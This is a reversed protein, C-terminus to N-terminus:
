MMCKRKTQWIQAGITLGPMELLMYHKSGNVADCLHRNATEVLRFSSFM